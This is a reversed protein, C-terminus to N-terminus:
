VASFNSDQRHCSRQGEVDVSELSKYSGSCESKCHCQETVSLTVSLDASASISDRYAPNDYVSEYSAAYNFVSQHLSNSEESQQDGLSNSEVKQPEKHISVNHQSTEMETLTRRHEDSSSDEQEVADFSFEEFSLSPNQQQEEQRTNMRLFEATLNPPLQFSFSLLKQISHVHLNLFLFNSDNAETDIQLSCQFISTLQIRFKRQELCYFFIM